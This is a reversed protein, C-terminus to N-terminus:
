LGLRAITLVYFLLFLAVLAVGIAVNRAQRRDREPPTLSREARKDGDGAMSTGSM